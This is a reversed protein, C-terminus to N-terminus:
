GSGQIIGSSQAIQSYVWRWVGEEAEDTGGIGGGHHGSVDGGVLSLIFENEERSRVSALTAAGGEPDLAACRENAASWSLRENIYHYCKGLDPNRAWGDPCASLSMTLHLFAIGVSDIIHPHFFNM